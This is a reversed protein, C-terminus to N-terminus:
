VNVVKLKWRDLYTHKVGDIRIDQTRILMVSEVVSNAIKSFLFSPCTLVGQERLNDQHPYSMNAPQRLKLASGLM